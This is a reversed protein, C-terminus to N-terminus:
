NWRSKHARAVNMHKPRLPPLRHGDACGTRGNARSRPRRTIKAKDSIVDGRVYGGFHHLVVLEIDDM